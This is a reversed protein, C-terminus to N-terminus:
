EGLMYKIVARPVDINAIVSIGFGPSPNVELVLPGRNSDIIDVGAFDLGLEAVSRIAMDNEETTPKYVVAKGGLHLNSRFDDSASDRLMAAVVKDGVVFLRKDRSVAEVIFEQAIFKDDNIYELLFKDLDVQSKILGVGKGQNGNTIKIVFVEGNYRYDRDIVWTKPIPIGAKSLTYFTDLKSFAKLFKRLEKSRVGSLQKELEIYKPISAPSLRYIVRDSDQIMNKIDDGLKVITAECGFDISAKKLLLNAPANIDPHVILIKLKPM